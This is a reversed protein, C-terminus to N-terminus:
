SKQHSLYVLSSYFQLATGGRLYPQEPPYYGSWPVTPLNRWEPRIIEQLFVDGSRDVEAQPCQNQIWTMLHEWAPAPSNGAFDRDSLRLIPAEPDALHLDCVQGYDQVVEVMKEEIQTQPKSWPRTQQIEVERVQLTTMRASTILLRRVSAWAFRYAPKSDGTVSLPQFSGWGDGEDRLQQGPLLILKQVQSSRVLQVPVQAQRLAQYLPWLHAAEGQHLVRAGGRRMHLQLTYADTSPLHQALTVACRQQEPRELTEAPSWVLFVLEAPEWSEPLGSQVSAPEAPSSSEQTSAQAPPTQTLSAQAPSVQTSSAPAPGDKLLTSLAQRALHLVQRNHSYQLLRRLVAEAEQRQGQQAYLLGLYLQVPPRDKAEPQEQLLAQLNAMAQNYDGQDYANKITELSPELM